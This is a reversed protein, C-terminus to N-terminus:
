KKQYDSLDDNEDTFNLDQKILSIIYDQITEGKSVTKLKMAIHLKDSFRVSIAKIDGGGKL